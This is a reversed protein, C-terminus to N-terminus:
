QRWDYEILMIESDQCAPRVFIKIDCILDDDKCRSEHAVEKRVRVVRDSYGLELGWIGIRTASVTLALVCM